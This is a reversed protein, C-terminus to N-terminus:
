RSSDVRKAASKAASSALLVPAALCANTLISLWNIFLFPFFPVYMGCCIGGGGNGGRLGM